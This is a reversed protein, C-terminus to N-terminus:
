DLSVAMAEVAEPWFQTGRGKMLLAVVEETPMAARYPRASMLADAVDAVALVKAADTLQDGTLGRFYGATWRIIIAADDALERFM